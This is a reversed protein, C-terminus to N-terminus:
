SHMLFLNGQFNTTVTKWTNAVGVGIQNAKNLLILNKGLEPYTGVYQKAYINPVIFVDKNPWHHADLIQKTELPHAM